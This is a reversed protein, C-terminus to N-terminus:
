AVLQENQCALTQVQCDVDETSLTCSSLGFQCLVLDTIPSALITTAIGLLTATRTSATSGAQRTFIGLIADIISQILELISVIITVILGIISEIFSVFLNLVSIIIGVILNLIEVIIDVISELIQGVQDESITTSGDTSQATLAQDASDIFVSLKEDIVEMDKASNMLIAILGSDDNRNKLFTIISGFIGGSDGSSLTDRLTAIPGDGDFLDFMKRDGSTIANGTIANLFDVIVQIIALAVGNILGLISLIASVILESISTIIGSLANVISTLLDAIAIGIGELLDFIANVLDATDASVEDNGEIYQLKTSQIAQSISTFRDAATLLIPVITEVTIQGNEDQLASKAVDIIGDKATNLVTGETNLLEKVNGIVSGIRSDSEEEKKLFREECMPCETALSRGNMWEHTQQELLKAASNLKRQSLKQIEDRPSEQETMSKAQLPAAVVVNSCHHLSLALLFFAQTGRIMTTHHSIRINIDSLTSKNQIKSPILM